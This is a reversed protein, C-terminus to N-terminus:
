KIILKNITKENDITLSLIYIGKLFVHIIALLNVFM